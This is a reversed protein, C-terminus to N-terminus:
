KGCLFAELSSAQAEETFTDPRFHKTQRSDGDLYEMILLPKDLAVFCFWNCHETHIHSFTYVLASPGPRKDKTRPGRTAKVQVTRIEGSPLKCWLDSGRRDVHHCEVGHSELIYAAFFEGQRGIDQTNFASM